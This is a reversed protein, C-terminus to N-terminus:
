DLRVPPGPCYRPGPPAPPRPSGRSTVLRPRLWVQKLMSTLRAGLFFCEDGCRRPIWRVTYLMTKKQADKVADELINVMMYLDFDALMETFQDYVEKQKDDLTYGGRLIEKTEASLDGRGPSSREGGM